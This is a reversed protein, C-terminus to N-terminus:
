GFNSIEPKGALARAILLRQKQGGSLNSGKITLKFDLEKDKERIFSAAQSDETAKIVDERSLGRGLNINEYISDAFLVDNQFAM